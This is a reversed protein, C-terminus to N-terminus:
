MEYIEFFSEKDIRLRVRTDRQQGALNVFVNYYLQSFSLLSRNYTIDFTWTQRSSDFYSVTAEGGGSMGGDGWEGGKCMLVEPYYDADDEGACSSVCLLLAAMVMMETLVAATKCLAAMSLIKNMM